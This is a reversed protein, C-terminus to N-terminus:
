LSMMKYRHKCVPLTLELEFLGQYSSFNSNSHANYSKDLHDFDYRSTSSVILYCNNTIISLVGWFRLFGM